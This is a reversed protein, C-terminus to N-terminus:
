YSQVSHYWNGSFNTFEIQKRYIALPILSKNEYSLFVAISTMSVQSSMKVDWENRYRIWPKLVLCDNITIILSLHSMSESLWEKRLVLADKDDIEICNLHIVFM